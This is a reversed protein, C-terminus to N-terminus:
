AAVGKSGTPVDSPRARRLGPVFRPVRAQYRRYVDGFHSVLDREELVTAAGMYVTLVGALLLHGASMTPTAWFAIAWGIYLPHRVYRYLWPTRFPLPEYARGQLHLWAQRTGFLDFHNILLSVAPVMLWGVGFLCWLLGRMAGTEVHWVIGPVTRWQWIMLWVVACSAFVYVSRELPAPVICLWWQKFAPRAMISHQLGFLALLSLNIAVASLAPADRGADVSVPWPVGAVFAALWAYTVLFLIHCGVAMVFCTWRQM